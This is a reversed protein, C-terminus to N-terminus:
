RDLSPPPAGRAGDATWASVSLLPTGRWALLLMGQDATVTAPQRVDAQARVPEQHRTLDVPTFGARHFRQGWAAHRQHREVRDVGDFGVVNVIERGFFQEELIRRATHGDPVLASLADFLAGYHALAEDVRATLPLQDHEADPEILTVLTPVWERLRTLVQDRVCVGHTSDTPSHHLALALNVVLAEDDRLDLHDARLEEMPVARAQYSFPLAHRAAVGTLEEGVERLVRGPDAGPAPLDVGTLRLHPPPDHRALAELLAPWQSGRGIGIDVVHLSLAPLAAIAANAAAYGFQVFPTQARLVEFAALMSAGDAPDLLYANGGGSGGDLRTRLGLGFLRHLRAGAPGAPTACRDLEALLARARDRDSAELAAAATLLCTRADM